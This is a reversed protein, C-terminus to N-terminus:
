SLNEINKKKSEYLGLKTKLLYEHAVTVGVM